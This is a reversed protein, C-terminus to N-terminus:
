TFFILPRLASKIQRFSVEDEDGSGNKARYIRYAKCPSELMYRIKDAFFTRSSYTLFKRPIEKQHAGRQGPMIARYVQQRDLRAFRKRMQERDEGWCVAHVHWSVARKRSWRTGYAINVYLAPEIMGIYSLGRLGQRLKKGFQQIDVFDADPTTCCSIDTLTVFFLQQDPFPHDADLGFFDQCERCVAKAWLLRSRSNVSCLVDADCQFLLRDLRTITDRKRSEQLRAKSGTRVSAGTESIRIGFIPRKFFIFTPVNLCQV